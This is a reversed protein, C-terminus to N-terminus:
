LNILSPRGIAFALDFGIVECALWAWPNIGGVM